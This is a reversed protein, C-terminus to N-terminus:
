GEGDEPGGTLILKYSFKFSFVCNKKPLYLVPAMQQYAWAVLYYM